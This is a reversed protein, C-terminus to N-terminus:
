PELTSFASFLMASEVALTVRWVSSAGASQFGM